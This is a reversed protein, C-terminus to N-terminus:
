EIEMEVVTSIDAPTPIYFPLTADGSYLRINEEYNKVYPDQVNHSFSSHTDKLCFVIICILVLNSKM